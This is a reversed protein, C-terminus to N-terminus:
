FKGGIEFIGATFKRAEAACGSSALATVQRAGALALDRRFLIKSRFYYLIVPRIVVPTAVELSVALLVETARFNWKKRLGSQGCLESLYTEVVKVDFM